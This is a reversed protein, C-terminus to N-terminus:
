SAKEEVQMERLKSVVMTEKVDKKARFKNIFITAAGGTSAAAVAMKTLNAICIPCM